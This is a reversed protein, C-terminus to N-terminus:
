HNFKKKKINPYLISYYTLFYLTSLILLCYKTSYIFYKIYVFFDYEMDCAFLVYSFSSLEFIFFYKILLVKLKSFKELIM